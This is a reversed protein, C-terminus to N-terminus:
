IKNCIDANKKIQNVEKDDKLLWKLLLDRLIDDELENVRRNRINKIRDKKNSIM